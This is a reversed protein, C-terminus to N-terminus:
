KPPSPTPAPNLLSGNPQDIVRFVFSLLIIFILLVVVVWFDFRTKLLLDLKM